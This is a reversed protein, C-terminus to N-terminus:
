KRDSFGHPCPTNNIFLYYFVFTAMVCDVAGLGLSATFVM